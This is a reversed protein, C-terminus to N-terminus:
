ETEEVVDEAKTESDAKQSEGLSRGRKLYDAYLERLAQLRPLTSVPLAADQRFLEALHNAPQSSPLQESVSQVIESEAEEELPSIDIAFHKLADSLKQYLLIKRKKSVREAFEQRLDDNVHIDGEFAIGYDSDRSVIVLEATNERACHIMWEWNFADGISIDTRKRPPYGHLFRRFARRRILNKIKNGHTLVIPSGERHFIRQCAQYVPDHLTPQALARNFKTKLKKVRKEIEAFNKSIVKTAQADSFIGPRPIQSPAKLEKMGELIAAHRNRKFESELQYTVIIDDSIGEAHKLLGLGTENRGRYFDLWINADVFLLKRLPM